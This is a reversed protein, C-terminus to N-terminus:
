GPPAATLFPDASIDKLGAGRLFCQRKLAAVQDPGGCLFVRAGKLTPAQRVAVAVVDGVERGEGPEGSLVCPVYHFNPRSRALDHVVGELYLGDAALAGHVLTIPGTHGRRLADRLVGLLPALGTGTGALLIPQEPRGETYFCEGAPGRLRVGTGPTAAALWRSMQGHPHVRVHLELLPDDGPVSALSYARVLGDDRVVQVYQGARYPMDELARLRVRAVAAGLDDVAVVEAPVSPLEDGAIELDGAPRCVCALFYGQERQAPRLGVTAATGPDGSAVRLMCSQCAGARCSSPVDAGERLLGDLVSEGHNLVVERGKYRILPV